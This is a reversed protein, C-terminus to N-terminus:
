NKSRKKRLVEKSSILDPSNNRQRLSFYSEENSPYGPVAKTVDAKEPEHHSPSGRGGQPLLLLSPAESTVSVVSLEVDLTPSAPYVTQDCTHTPTQAVVANDSFSRFQKAYNDAQVRTPSSRECQQPKRPVQNYASNLGSNAAGLARFWGNSDITLKVLEHEDETPHTTDSFTAPNSMLPFVVAIRIRKPVGGKRGNHLKSLGAPSWDWFLGIRYRVFVEWRSDKGGVSANAVLASKLTQVHRKKESKVLFSAADGGFSVLSQDSYDQYATNMSDNLMIICSRHKNVYRTLQTMLVIMSRNKFGHLTSNAKWIKYNMHAHLYDIVIQSMGELIILDYRENLEQFFYVLQSFKTIRLTDLKGELESDQSKCRSVLNLPTTKHGDIVLICKSNNEHILQLGFHTKGIGPPGYVEYISRSQLGGSLAEDLEPIGTTLHDLSEEVLQSLSVGLSM